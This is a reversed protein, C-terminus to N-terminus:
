VIQYNNGGMKVVLGKIELSSLLASAKYMPLGSKESIETIHALALTKLLAYLAQEDESLPPLEEKREEKIGFASFIDQATQTLYAGQQILANCGAGAYVNPAYPIAFLKKDLEKAYKATILAGSKEGAGVVLVGECLASLLKNRYEYSFARVPTEYSYPSLLLGNKEVRKLLELNGQPLSSFGGATLCIVNGNAKLGGQLAASDGGDAAGTVVVFEKTLEETIKETLKLASSITSRSGVVAFKRKKLLSTDGKAYLVIPADAFSKWENPYLLSGYAIPCIEKEEYRQLLVKFYAGDDELSQRMNNYVSEKGRKILFDAFRQFEKVLKCASGADELLKRKESPELPFSDLWIYSKETASLQM